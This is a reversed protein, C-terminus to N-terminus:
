FKVHLSQIQNFLFVKCSSVIWMICFNIPSYAMALGEMSQGQNCILVHSTFLSDYVM